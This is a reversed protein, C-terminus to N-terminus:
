RTTSESLEPAGDPLREVKRAYARVVPPATIGHLVVSALVTVTV